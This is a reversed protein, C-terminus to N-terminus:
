WVESIPSDKARECNLKKEEKRMMLHITIMQTKSKKTQDSVHPPAHSPITVLRKIKQHQKTESKKKNRQM